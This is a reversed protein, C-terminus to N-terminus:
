PKFYLPSALRGSLVFERSEFEPPATAQHHSLTELETTFLERYLTNRDFEPADNLYWAARQLRGTERNHQRLAFQALNRSCQLRRAEERSQQLAIPLPALLMFLIVGFVTAYKVAEPALMYFAGWIIAVYGVVAVAAAFILAVGLVAWFGFAAITALLMCLVTMASLLAFLTFQAESLRPRAM